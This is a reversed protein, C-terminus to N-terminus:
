TSPQMGEGIDQPIDIKSNNNYFCIIALFEVRGSKNIILNLFAIFDYITLNRKLFGISQVPFYWFNISFVLNKM